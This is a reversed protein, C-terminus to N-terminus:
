AGGDILKIVTRYEIREFLCRVVARADFDNVVYSSLM